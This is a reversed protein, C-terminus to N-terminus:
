RTSMLGHWMRQVVGKSSSTLIECTTVHDGGTHPLLMFVVGGKSNCVISLREPTVISSTMSDVTFTVGHSVARITDM